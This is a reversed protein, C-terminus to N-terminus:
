FEKKKGIVVASGAVSMLALGAYMAVGADFTKASTVGETKGDKAPAAGIEFYGNEVDKNRKNAALLLWDNYSVAKQTKGCDPCTRGTVTVKDEAFIYQWAHPANKAEGLIGYMKGGILLYGEESPEGAKVVVYYTEDDDVYSAVDRGKVNEANKQYFTKCTADDKKVTKGVLEGEAIYEVDAAALYLWSNGSRVAYNAYDAKDVVVYTDGAIVYHAIKNHAADAAKFTVDTASADEAVKKNADLVYAKGSEFGATAAFAVTGLALVMALCLVLSVIKKM